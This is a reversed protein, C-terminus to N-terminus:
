HDIPSSLGQFYSSVFDARIGPLRPCLYEERDLNGYHKSSGRRTGGAFRWKGAWEDTPSLPAPAGDHFRLM